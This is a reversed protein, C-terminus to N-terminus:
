PKLGTAACGLSASSLSILRSSNSRLSNKGGGRYLTKRSSGFALSSPAKEKSRAFFHFHFYKINQWIHITSERRTDVV